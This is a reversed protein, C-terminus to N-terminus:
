RDLLFLSELCQRSANDVLDRMTGNGLDTAMCRRAPRPLLRVFALQDAGYSTDEAQPIALDRHCRQNDAGAARLKSQPLCIVDGRAQVLQSYGAPDFNDLSGAVM